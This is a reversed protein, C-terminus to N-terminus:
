KAAAPTDCNADVTHKKAPDIAGFQAADEKGLQLPSTFATRPVLTVNTTVLHDGICFSMTVVPRHETGGNRERIHQDQVIPLDLKMEKGPMVLGNDVTFQAFMGGEGHAYKIDVAQLVTYAGGGNLQADVELAKGGGLHAWEVAGYVHTLPVPTQTQAQAAGSCIIGALLAWRGSQKM